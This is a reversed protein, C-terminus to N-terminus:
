RTEKPKAAAATRTTPTEAPPSAPTEAPETAAKATKSALKAPLPRGLGDIAPEDLVEVADGLQDARARSVTSEHGTSKDRVRVFDPM